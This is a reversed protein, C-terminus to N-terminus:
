DGKGEQGGGGQERAAKEEKEAQQQEKTKREEGQMWKADGGGDNKFDEIEMAKTWKWEPTRRIGKHEGYIKWLEGDCSPLGSKGEELTSDVVAPDAELNSPNPGGKYFAAEPLPVRDPGSYGAKLNWTCWVKEFQCSYFARRGTVNSVKPWAYAAWYRERLDAIKADGDPVEGGANEAKEKGPLYFAFLYGNREAVGKSNVRFVQGNKFRAVLFEYGDQKEFYTEPKGTPYNWYIDKDQENKAVFWLWDKVGTTPARGKGGDTQIWSIGLLEWLFAFEGLGDGDLDKPMPTIDQTFMRQAISFGRLVSYADREREIMEHRHSEPDKSEPIEAPVVRAQAPEEKRAGPSKKPPVREPEREPPKAPPNKPGCSPALAVLAGVALSVAWLAGLATLRVRPRSM